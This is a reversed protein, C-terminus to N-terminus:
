SAATSRTRGGRRTRRADLCAMAPTVTIGHLLISVLVVVSVTTWLLPAKAFTAHNVAFALYYISGLGRIGFFSIAAQEEPPCGSGALSAWAALPRVLLITVGTFLGVRWDFGALLGGALAGGFLVLFVMMLLRELEEAFDHLKKHYDHNREARRLALASVFVALFGYGSAMETVGYAFATIGLAVFGDGTRSLGARNPLHFLLWALARGVVLGIAIGAAVKWLVAYTFWGSWGEGGREGGALMVALLVFPFAAGDNLGAESTLAFRAEDEEGSKPPGVQVDSALVPDTPALAAALLVASAAGLGLLVYALLGLAAITLPMALGILRWTIAWSLFGLPRDLKLGAGTLAVIVVLETFRETIKPYDVPSPIPGPVFPLSFLLTGFGVCLIPLSLPAEKLLMPLWATLLILVGFLALVVVYPDM